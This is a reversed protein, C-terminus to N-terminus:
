FVPDLKELTTGFIDRDEGPIFPMGKLSQWNNICPLKTTTRPQSIITRQRLMM